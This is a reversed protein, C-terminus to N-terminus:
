IVVWKMILHYCFIKCALSIDTGRLTAERHKLYPSKLPGLKGISALDFSIAISSENSYLNNETFCDSKCYM